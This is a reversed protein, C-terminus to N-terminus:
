KVLCNQVNVAYSRNVKHLASQADRRCLRPSLLWLLVPGSFFSNSTRFYVWPVGHCLYQCFGKWMVTLKRLECAAGEEAQM